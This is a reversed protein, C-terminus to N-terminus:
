RSKLFSSKNIKKKDKSWEMGTNFFVLGQNKGNKNPNLKIPSETKTVTEKKCTNRAEAIPLGYFWKTLKKLKKKYTVNFLTLGFFVSAWCFLLISQEFHCSMQTQTRRLKQLNSFYAQLRCHTKWQSKNIFFLSSLHFNLLLNILM